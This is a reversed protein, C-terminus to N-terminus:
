LLTEGGGGGGGRHSQVSRLALQDPHNSVLHRSDPVDQRLLSANQFQPPKKQLVGAHAEEEAADPLDVLVALGVKHDDVLTLLFADAPSIAKASKGERKKKKKRNISVAKVSNSSQKFFNMRRSSM